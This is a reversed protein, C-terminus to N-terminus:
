LLLARKVIPALALSPPLAGFGGGWDEGLRSTCFAEALPEPAYRLLLSAQMLLVLQRALRRADAEQQLAPRRLGDALRTLAHRYAPHRGPVRALEALLADLARPLKALTRLVDLCMVNGAGEWISNVPMEAYIRAMVSEAMYANGGMAEMAEAALEPGRKCVWYKAAPILLRRLLTEGEDDPADGARALRLALAIAAEVELAMDALVNQMLPQEVLKQGFARRHRCHHVAQSLAQRMLGATGLVCDLRTHGGMELILPVGRGEEGLLVGYAAEFEVEASANSRNGLKDKLRQLRIANRQGDPLWRPMFFCSLGGPAQALVLHADSQPASFFWKHGTLRYSGDSTPEARTTNARVDSGGQKETMGMGILGGRKQGFPLDREDYDRSCLTPLWDLTLGAHQSLVPIAGFTMTTPCLTGAEVQAQLLFAAARAVHAGPQPDVWPACHLRRDVIGRMLAHWAPHFEVEDRRFGQADFCHLLPPYLNALRGQEFSERRGLEAGCYSLQERAWAAGERVIGEQLAADSTFLNYDVLPPPQNFVEHTSQTM